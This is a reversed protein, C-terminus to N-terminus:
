LYHDEDFKSLHFAIDKYLQEDYVQNIYLEQPMKLHVYKEYDEKSLTEPNRSYCHYFEMLIENCNQSFKSIFNSLAWSALSLEYVKDNIEYRSLAILMKNPLDELAAHLCQNEEGTLSELLTLFLYGKFKVKHVHQKESSLCDYISYKSKIYLDSHNYMIEFGSKYLEKKRGDEILEKLQEFTDSKFDTTLNM